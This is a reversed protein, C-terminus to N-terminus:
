DDVSEDTVVDYSEPYQRDLVNTVKFELIAKVIFDRVHAPLSDLRCATIIYGEPGAATTTGNFISTAIREVEGYSIHGEALLDKLNKPKTM